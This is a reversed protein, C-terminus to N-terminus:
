IPGLSPGLYPRVKLVVADYSFAVDSPDPPNAGSVHRLFFFYGALAVLLLTTVPRLYLDQLLSPQPLLLPRHPGTPTLLSFM